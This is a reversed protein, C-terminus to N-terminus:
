SPRAQLTRRHDELLRDMVLSTRIATVGTSPCSGRGTLADVVTEILPQQVHPPHRVFPLTETVSGRTRTVPVDAFVSFRLSGETGVVEVTERREAASFSWLGVGHVGERFVMQASVQDEARYLGARNASSGSVRVIPGLLFDLLDLTHSALDVFLGGGSIEPQLRWSPLAGGANRDPPALHTVVVALPEGVAGQALLEEVQLFRPLARRYYAVFLQVGAQDCARLMAEADTATPAMPKEVYVPKGAAAAMETLPRHSSPPTAVYIANVDPDAILAAADDYWRPVGHRRAYDQALAGNRRMVAVLGSDHAKQLAPGSKVEAVDGCGVMGWRVTRM